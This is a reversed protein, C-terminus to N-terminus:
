CSKCVKGHATKEKHLKRKFWRYVRRCVVTAMGLLGIELAGGCLCFLM